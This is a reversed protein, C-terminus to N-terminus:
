TDTNPSVYSVQINADAKDGNKDLLQQETRQLKPVHFELYKYLIELAKDPSDKAVEDFWTQIKASNLDCFKAIAERALKIEEQTAGAKRGSGKRKGGHAM